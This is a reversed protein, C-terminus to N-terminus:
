NIWQVVEERAVDIVLLSLAYRAVLAQVAKQAFFKNYAVDPVALYLKRQPDTLELFARYLDLQGLALKLDHVPSPGSFSKIEVVIQSGGRRAALPREAALDAFLTLEEYEITYPDDTITWGDKALAATVADHIADEASM